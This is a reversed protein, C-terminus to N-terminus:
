SRMNVSNWDNSLEIPVEYAIDDFGYVHFDSIVKLLQCCNNNQNKIETNLVVM